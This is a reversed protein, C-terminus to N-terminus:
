GNRWATLGGRLEFIHAAPAGERVLKNAAITSRVGSACYLLVDGAPLDAPDLNAPECRLVTGELQDRAAEDASRLDVLSPRWGDTMRARAQAPSLSTWCLPEHDSLDLVPPRAPDRRFRLTRSTMTLADFILLRGSLPEGIGLLLKLAESAQLTGLIGPLVGLVGAESCRPALEPPPPEPFLDRLTPGRHHHFVSLQGEFGQVAAYVLPKGLLECADNVLYRTAFRDSGDIIIDYRSLLDMVNHSTLRDVHPEIGIHPNLGTLREAAALAKPRGLDGTGYLVQRQLNSVEVSDFDIVGIRGVGAAALYLLCPSGLGGAGIVLVSGRRLRLQGAEGIEPLSLHRAYRARERESLPENM